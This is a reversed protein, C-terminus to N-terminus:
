DEVEKEYIDVKKVRDDDAFTKYRDGNFIVAPNIWYMDKRDKSIIDYDSLNKLGRRITKANLKLHDAYENTRIRIRDKNKGLKSAILVFLKVTNGDMLMRDSIGKKFIKTNSEVDVTTGIRHESSDVTGTKPVIVGEETKLDATNVQRSVRFHKMIPISLHSLFPNM